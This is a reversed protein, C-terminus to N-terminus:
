FNKNLEMNWTIATKAYLFVIIRQTGEGRHDNRNTTSKRQEKKVTKRLVNGAGDKTYGSVSLM